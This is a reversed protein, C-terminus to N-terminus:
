VVITKTYEVMAYSPTQTTGDYTTAVTVKGEGSDLRAKLLVGNAIVYENADCYLIVSIKTGTGGATGSFTLGSYLLQFKSGGTSASRPEVYQDGTLAEQNVRVTYTGGDFYYLRYGANTARNSHTTWSAYVDYVGYPMPDWDYRAYEGTTGAAHYHVGTGYGQGATFSWGAGVLTYNGDGCTKVWEDDYGVTIPIDWANQSAHPMARWTDTGDQLCSGWLGVIEGLDSISHAVSKVATGSSGDPLAGLSVVKRYITKGDIWTLGTDHEDTSYVSEGIQLPETGISEIRPGTFTQPTEPGGYEQGGFVIEADAENMNRHQFKIWAASRAEGSIRAEDMQGDFYYKNTPSGVLSMRGLRCVGTSAAPGVHTGAVVTSVLDGDVYFIASTGSHVATIHQWGASTSLSSNPADSQVAGAATYTVLAFKGTAGHGFLLYGSTSYGENCMMIPSGGSFTDFNVWCDLTFDGTYHLSSDNGCYIYNDLVGSFNRARNVVGATDTPGNLNGDNGTTGTADSIQYTAEGNDNMHWVAGYNADLWTDGSAVPSTESANGYYMYFTAGTSSDITGVNVWFWGTAVSSAVSFDEMEAELLTSGDSATFRVDAGDSRANAGLHHDNAIPVYVPFNSLNSDVNTPDITISKRYNWGSLWAM